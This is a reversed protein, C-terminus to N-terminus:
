TEGIFEGRITWWKKLIEVCQEFSGANSFLQHYARHDASSVRKGPRQPTFKAPHQPPIHHFSTAKYRQAGWSM